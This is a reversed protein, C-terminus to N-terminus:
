AFAQQRAAIAQWIPFTVAPHWTHFNGRAGDMDTLRVEVLSDPDAVPLSQLRVANVVQFLASNAGIGLTLSLIAVLAFGPNRRFTRLAYRLDQVLQEVWRRGWVDRTAEQIQSINGLERRAAAAAEEPTEGRAIRDAAAMQLHAAREERAGTEKKKM